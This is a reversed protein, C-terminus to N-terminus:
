VTQFEQSRTGHIPWRQQHITDLITFMARTRQRITFAPDAECRRTIETNRAARFVRNPATEGWHKRNEEKRPIYLYEGDVYEQIARLLHQPLVKTAKKYGM